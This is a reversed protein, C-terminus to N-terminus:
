GGLESMQRTGHAGHHHEPKLLVCALFAARIAEEDVKPRLAARLDVEGGDFLCARLEGLATVRLRNCQECFPQSMASIFGVRGRMGSAAFVRAPGLGAESERSLELLSGLTSEIAKRAHGASVAGDEYGSLFRSEGLPMYEIFRVTWERKIALSALDAIETDTMGPLLVVNIKMRKFGAREAADIGALARELSGGATIHSYRAADLTDLSVTLRDLGAARLPQALRELQTANTTMSTDQFGLAVVRGVLEVVDRRVTPEGGTIKIHTVGIGRAVRAIAEIEDVSLLQEKPAFRVGGEPM